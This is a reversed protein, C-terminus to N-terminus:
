EDGFLWDLIEEVKSVTLAILFPVLIYLCDLAELVFDRMEERFFHLKARLSLYGIRAFFALEDLFRRM